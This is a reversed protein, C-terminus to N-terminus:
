SAGERDSCLYSKIILRKGSPEASIRDVIEVVVKLDSGFFEELERELDVVFDQSTSARPVVLLRVSDITKQVAQYEWIAARSLCYPLLIRGLSGASVLRGSRTRVVEPDRGELSLLTPFGRGCPCPSGRIARDGTDYNIFPMVYNTLDTILVRGEEGARASMGDERVVRLLFRDSNIHLSGGHDPCTQAVHPTEWCSYHNAIRCQFANEIIKSRLPTLTESISIVTEPYAPLRIKSELIQKALSSLYSPFGLLFYQRNRPLKELQAVFVGPAIDVGSLNVIREGLFIRRATQMVRSSRAITRGFQANGVYVMTFGIPVGAWQRFFLYSALTPGEAERDRFFEFPLGTSGSTKGKLWRSAPLNDATTGRPFHRRLDAKTTVPILALDALSRIQDPSLRASRFLDRYYPVHSVAHNLLPSLKRFARNELERASLWQLENLELCGSWLGRRTVREYLWLVMHRASPSHVMASRHTRSGLGATMHGDLCPARSM